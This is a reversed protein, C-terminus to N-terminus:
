TNLLVIAVMAFALGILQTVSLVEQFYFTGVLVTGLVIILNVLSGAVGLEVKQNLLGFLLYTFPALVIVIAMSQWHGTKGWNASLSDCLTFIAGCALVLGWIYLKPM